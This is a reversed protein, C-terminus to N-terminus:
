IRRVMKKASGEEMLAWFESLRVISLLDAWYGLASSVVRLNSQLGHPFRRRQRRQQQGDRM